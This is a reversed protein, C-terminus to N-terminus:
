PLSVLHAHRDLGQQVDETTILVNAPLHQESPLDPTEPRPQDHSRTPMDFWPSDTTDAATRSACSSTPMVTDLDSTSRM